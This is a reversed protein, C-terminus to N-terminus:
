VVFQPSLVGGGEFFLEHNREILGSCANWLCWEIPFQVLARHSATPFFVLRTNSGTSPLRYYTSNTGKKGRWRRALSDKKRALTIRTVDLPSHPNMLLSLSISLYISLSLSFSFMMCVLLLFMPICVSLCTSLRLSLRISVCVCVCLCVSLSPPLSM